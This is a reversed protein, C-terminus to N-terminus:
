DAQCGFNFKEEKFEVRHIGLLVPTTRGCACPETMRTVSGADGPRYNIVTTGTAAVIPHYDTEVPCFKEFTLRLVALLDEVPVDQMAAYSRAASQVGALAQWQALQHVRLVGQGHHDQIIAVNAQDYRFEGGVYSPVDIVTRTMLLVGKDHRSHRNDTNAQATM